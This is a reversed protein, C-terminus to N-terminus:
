PLLFELVLRPPQLMTHIILCWFEPSERQGIPGCHLSALVPLPSDMAIVAINMTAGQFNARYLGDVM